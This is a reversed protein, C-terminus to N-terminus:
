WLVCRNSANMTSNAPCNFVTSFEKMNQMPINVRLDEPSHPDYQILHQKAEKRMQSCWVMAEGIFFLQRGSLHELGPLRTDEGGCEDELLKEYAKYAMRMGGNDAINEGVTNKGSITMNAEEDTINGYQEIFCKAKDNFKTRTENTWWQKLAGNADFQSGTDDFGHTM